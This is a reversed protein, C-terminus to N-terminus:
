QLEEKLKTNFVKWDVEWYNFMPPTQTAIVLTNLKTLIPLHDMNPERNDPDTNCLILLPLTHKTCFVNNPRTWNGSNSVQLTPIDKPLAQSMGYDALLDLLKQALELAATTFLHNNWEKDWLPHHRNFDGLWLMHDDETPRIRALQAVMFCGLEDLTHDHTCDNYINFITVLGSATKIRIIVVDASPFEVQEWYNTSIRTNIFMVARPKQGKTLKYTPYVVRWHHNAKTNGLRDIPPEQLAIIDWNGTTPNSTLSHLTTPSTNFNQQWIKIEELQAQHADNYM